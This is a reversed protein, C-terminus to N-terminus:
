TYVNRILLSCAPFMKRARLNVSSVRFDDESRSCERYLEDTDMSDENRTECIGSMTKVFISPFFFANSTIQVSGFFRSFFFLLCTDSSVRPRLAHFKPFIRVSRRVDRFTSELRFHLPPPSPLPSSLFLVASPVPTQRGYTPNEHLHSKHM